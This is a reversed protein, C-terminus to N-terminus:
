ASDSRVVNGQQTLGVSGYDILRLATPPTGGAFLRKGSGLVVPHILVRYEDILEREMLARVLAASGHVQLENGPRRTLQAVADFVDGELLTSNNWDLRGLTTSVVYKPMGNLKAALVDAPDTILAWLGAVLEYTRRGMLFADAAAMWDEVLKGLEDDLYPM